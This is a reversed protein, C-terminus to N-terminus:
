HRQEGPAISGRGSPFRIQELQEICSKCHAIADMLKRNHDELENIRKLYARLTRAALIEGELEHLRSALMTANETLQENNEELERVRKPLEVFEPKVQQLVRELEEVRQARQRASDTLIRNKTELEKIRGSFLKV